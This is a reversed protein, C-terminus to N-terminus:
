ERSSRSEDHALEEVLAHLGRAATTEWRFNVRGASEGPQPNIEVVVASDPALRVM